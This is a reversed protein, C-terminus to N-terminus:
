AETKQMSEAWNLDAEETTTSDVVEIDEVVEVGKANKPANYESLLVLPHIKINERRVYTADGKRKGTSVVKPLHFVQLNSPAKMTIETVVKLDVFETAEWTVGLVDTLYQVLTTKAFTNSGQTLISSKPNGEDDYKCSGWMDVKAEAKPVVTIFLVPQIDKPMMGWDVSKFIDLGNGSVELQEEAGEPAVNLRPGFDLNNAEAFEASPYVKGNAFVRLDGVIPLKDIVVKKAEVKVTELTVNSLFDLNSM